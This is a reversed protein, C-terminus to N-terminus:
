QRQTINLTVEYSNSEVEQVIAHSSTTIHDKILDIAKRITEDTGYIKFGNLTYVKPTVITAGSQDVIRKIVSGKKGVVLGIYRSPLFLNLRKKDGDRYTCAELFINLDYQLSQKIIENKAM